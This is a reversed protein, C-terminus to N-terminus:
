VPKWDILYCMPLWINLFFFHYASVTIIREVSFVSFMTMLQFKRLYTLSKQFKQGIGLKSNGSNEFALFSFEFVRVRKLGSVKNDCWLHFIQCLHIHNLKMLWCLFINMWYLQINFSCNENFVGLYKKWYVIFM